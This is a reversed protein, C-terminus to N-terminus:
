EGLASFLAHLEEQAERDNRTTTRLENWIAERYRKRLRHLRNNVDSESLGLQSALDKYTAGEPDTSTIRAALVEFETVRGAAQEGERLTDQARKMVAMAWKRAFLRDPDISAPESLLEQEAEEFDLAVQLAQGGRKHALRHKREDALYHDLAVRLFFRFKGRGRDVYSVFDRELFAAFFGQTLDKAAERDHGRRRVLFHIPKWYVAILRELARRQEEPDSARAELIDTWQTTPFLAGM